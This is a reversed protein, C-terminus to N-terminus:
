YNHYQQSAFLNESDKACILETILENIFLRILGPGAIRPLWKRWQDRHTTQEM